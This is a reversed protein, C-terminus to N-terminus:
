SKKKFILTAGYILGGIVVVGVLISVGLPMGLFGKSKTDKPPKTGSSGKQDEISEGGAVKAAKDLTSLGINAWADQSAKQKEKLKANAWGLLALDKVMQNQYSIAGEPSKEFAAKKATLWDKFVPFIKAGILPKEKEYLQNMSLLQAM